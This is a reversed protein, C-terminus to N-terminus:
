RMLTAFTAVIIKIDVLLSRKAYRVRLRNKDKFVKQLYASHADGSGVWASLDHYKVSAYDTIGPKVSLCRMEDETYLETYERIEPRPGVFSM